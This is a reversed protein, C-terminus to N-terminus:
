KGGLLRDLKKDIKDLKEDINKHRENCVDVNQYKKGNLHKSTNTIHKIFATALFGSGGGTLLGIIVSNDTTAQALMFIM